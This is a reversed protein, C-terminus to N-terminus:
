GCSRDAFERARFAPLVIRQNNSFVVRPSDSRDDPDLEYDVMLVTGQLHLFEAGNCVELAVDIERSIKVAVVRVPHRRVFM